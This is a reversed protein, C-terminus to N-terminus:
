SFFYTDTLAFDYSNPDCSDAEFDTFISMVDVTHEGGYDYCISADHTRAYPINADKFYYLNTSDRGANETYIPGNNVANMSKIKGVTKDRDVTLKM